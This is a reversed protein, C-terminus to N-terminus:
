KSRCNRGGRHCRKVSRANTCCPRRLFAIANTLKKKCYRHVVTAIDHTGASSESVSQRSPAEIRTSCLERARMGTPHTGRRPPSAPGENTRHRPARSRRSPSPQEHRECRAGKALVRRPDVVSTAALRAVANRECAAAIATQCRGPCEEVNRHVNPRSASSGWNRRWRRVRSVLPFRKRLAVM